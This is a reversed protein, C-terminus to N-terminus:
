VVACVLLLQGSLLLWELEMAALACVLRRRNTTKEGAYDRVKAALAGAQRMRERKEEDAAYQYSDSFPPARGSSSYSPRPISEPVELPPSVVGPQAVVM